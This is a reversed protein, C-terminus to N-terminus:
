RRPDLDVTMMWRATVNCRDLVAPWFVTKRIGDIYQRVFTRDTSGTIFISDGMPSGTEDVRLIVVLKGERRRGNM